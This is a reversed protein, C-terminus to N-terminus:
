NNLLENGKFLFDENRVQVVSHIGSSQLWASRRMTIAPAMTCATTDSMDLVAQLSM